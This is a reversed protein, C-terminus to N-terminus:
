LQLYLREIDKEPIQKLKSIVAPL